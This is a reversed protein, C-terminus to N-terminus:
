SQLQAAVRCMSSRHPVSASIPDIDKDAILNNVNASDPGLPAYGPLGLEKCDQWWGYIACVVRPHLSRNYKAKLKVRGVPNELIAWDGDAIGESEATDPHIEVFPEPLRSRLRPTNRNQPGIYHISRFSTLM